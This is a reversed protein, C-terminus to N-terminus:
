ACVAHSDIADLKIEGKEVYCGVYAYRRCMFLIRFHRLATTGWVLTGIIYKNVRGTNAMFLTQMKAVVFLLTASKGGHSFTGMEIEKLYIRLVPIM